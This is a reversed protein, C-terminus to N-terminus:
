EGRPLTLTIRSYDPVESEALPIGSEPLAQRFTAAARRLVPAVEAPADVHIHVVGDAAAGHIRVTGEEPVARIAAEALMVLAVRLPERVGRVHVDEGLPQLAFHRGALKALVAGLGDVEALVEDVGFTDEGVHDPRILRLMQDLLQHLRRVESEIVDIRELASETRGTTVRTRLVELNIVVSNLPNKLEHALDDAMRRILEFHEASATEGAPGPTDPSVTDGSLTWNPAPHM